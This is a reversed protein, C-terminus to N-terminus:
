IYKHLEMYIEEENYDPAYRSAIDCIKTIKEVREGLVDAIKAATIGGNLNKCIISILYEEKAKERLYNEYLRAKLYKVGVEKNHKVKEVIEHIQRTTESHVNSIRSDEMYRLLEALDERAGIEGKTYLFVRTAEDDLALEPNEKCRHEFSYCMRNEGFVDEPTIIIVWLPKLAKYDESTRLLSSDILAQYYRSQKPLGTVDYCHPEVDYVVEEPQVRKVEDGKVIEEIYADMRIGHGKTDGPTCVKQTQVIVDGIERQLIVELILKAVKSGFVSNSMVEQFLFDNILNMDEVTKDM